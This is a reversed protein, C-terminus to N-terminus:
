RSATADATKMNMHEIKICKNMVVELGADRARRAAENNAIGLQMWVAKAGITVADDVIPGVADPRRFIDVIDVPFPLTKLNPYCPRGLIEKQGPNIPVVDYGNEQLYRAVQHSDREPKPSLGVVAVVRYTDLLNRIGESPPNYEPMECHTNM